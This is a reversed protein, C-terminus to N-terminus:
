FHILKVEIYIKEGPRDGALGNSPKKRGAVEM